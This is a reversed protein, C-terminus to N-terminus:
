PVPATAALRSRLEAPPLALLPLVEEPAVERRETAFVRFVRATHYLEGSVRPLDILGASGGGTLRQVAGGRRLALLDLGMMRPKEPYDVFVERAGLGMRAALHEELLRLLETDQAIWGDV